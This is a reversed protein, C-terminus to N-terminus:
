YTLAFAWAVSVSEGPYGDQIAQLLEIVQAGLDPGHRRCAQQNGSDARAFLWTGPLRVKQDAPTYFSVVQNRIGLTLVHEQLEGNWHPVGAIVSVM